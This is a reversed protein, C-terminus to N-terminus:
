YFNIGVLLFGENMGPNPEEIGANSIHTYRAQVDLAMDPRFFYEAGVAANQTFSFRTGQIHNPVDIYAMGLMGQGYPVIKGASTFNYRLGVPTLGVFAM